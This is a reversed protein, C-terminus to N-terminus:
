GGHNRNYPESISISPDEGVSEPTTSFSFAGYIMVGNNPFCLRGDPQDGSVAAQLYNKFHPQCRFAESYLGSLREIAAPCSHSRCWASRITLSRGARQNTASSTHFLSTTSGSSLSTASNSMIFARFRCDFVLLILTLTSPSASTVDLSM